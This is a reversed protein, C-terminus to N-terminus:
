SNRGQTTPAKKASPAFHSCLEVLAYQKVLQSLRPRKMGLLQAARTINGSTQRLALVICEREVNRKVDPLSFGAEVIERFAARPANLETAHGAETAQLAAFRDRNQTLEPSAALLSQTDVRRPSRLTARRLVLELEEVNGPWEYGRLLCLAREDLEAVAERRQLAIRQLLHRALADLDGLRQRLAPIRITQAAVVTLLEPACADLDTTSTALVWPGPQNSGLRKTLQHTVGLSLQELNTILLTSRGQAGDSWLQELDDVSLSAAARLEFRARGHLAQHLLWAVYRRGCGREGLLLTPVRRAQTLSAQLGQAGASNGVLETESTPYRLTAALEGGKLLAALENLVLQEGRALFRTADALRSAVARQCELAKDVHFISRDRNDSTYAVRAAIQHGERMLEEDGSGRALGVAADADALSAEGSCQELAVSLVAIEAHAYESAARDRAEILESRAEELYGEALAIRAAMRCCEDAKDGNAAVDAHRKANLVARKANLLQGGEFAVRAEALGLACLKTVPPEDLARRAFRLAQEAEESQGMRLRLEVLNTVDHAFATRHGVQLHTDLARELYDLAHSYERRDIHLVALNSLAYGAARSNKQRGSESLVRRLEGEALALQGLALLAVSRNVRAKLVETLEGALAADAADAAFHKEARAWDSRALLVKGAVNRASFQIAANPHGLLPQVRQEAAQYHGRSLEVEALLAGAVAARHADGARSAFREAQEFAATAGALDGQGLAARGRVLLARATDGAGDSCRVALATDGRDMCSEAASLRLETQLIPELEAIQAAIKSWLAARCRHTACAELASLWTQAAGSQAGLGLRLEAARALAAPDRPYVQALADAIRAPDVLHTHDLLSLAEVLGDRVEVAGAELLEALATQCASKERGLQGPGSLTGEGAEPSPAVDVRPHNYLTEMAVRPWSRDALQLAGLLAMGRASPRSTVGSALLAEWGVGQHRHSAHAALAEWWRRLDDGALEHPLARFAELPGRALAVVVCALDAQELAELLASDALEDGVYVVCVGHFTEFWAIMRELLQSASPRPEDNTGLFSLREALDYVSGGSPNRSSILLPLRQLECRRRIHADVGHLARSSDSWLRLLGAERQSPAALSSVAAFGTSGANPTAISSITAHRSLAEDVQSFASLWEGRYSSAVPASDRPPRPSDLGTRQAPDTAQGAESLTQM